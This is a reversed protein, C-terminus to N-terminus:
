SKEEAKQCGMERGMRAAATVGLWVGTHSPTSPAM